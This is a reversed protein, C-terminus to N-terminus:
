KGESKAMKAINEGVEYALKPENVEKFQKTPTIYGM